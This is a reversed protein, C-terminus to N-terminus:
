DLIAELVLSAFLLANEEAQATLRYSAARKPFEMIWTPHTSGISAGTSPARFQQHAASEQPKRQLKVIGGRKPRELKWLLDRSRHRRMKPETVKM